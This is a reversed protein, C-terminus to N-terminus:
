KVELRFPLVAWVPERRLHLLADVGRLKGHLEPVKKIAPLLLSLSADGQSGFLDELIGKSKPLLLLEPEKDAPLGGLKAAAVIADHLTGLEDVLGNEKAQRGTWIRGGALDLFDKRNIKKGAKVRGALAKDVFQDYIDQMMGKMTKRETESFPEDSALLGSNVGRAIVETKIGVKEWLGRTAFKGGVVGISGTLTGPEAYIKKAAMSIYYGGSAAIDAMSAIVPKKSRKLENWILDSALASGGPSDVRLVIAKVTKDNEADRIAKVITDSGMVESGLLSATSKGTVIPGNAYIVAVKPGRGGSSKSPGFLLKRYLGFIDLEEHKKKQYDRVVKAEGPLTKKIVEEYDELYALRDVLGVKKAGAATYPGDDILKKVKDATLKYKGRAKAIRGVIENEYFDDLVSTLQKKNPESLSNRTYPEAAGKFDGMQLMDAHVGIKKFLDKYFSVELRIGNLMLWTSEPVCVEDCALALLYDKTTGAELHAYAKKGTARFAAIAQSLENLKGWGVAVGNVELVLAGIEKDAGAKKIRDLKDKFTEGLSGLLPDVVPAKETMSGSLKIHAVKKPAPKEAPKEAPKKTEEDARGTYPLLLALSLAPALWRGM